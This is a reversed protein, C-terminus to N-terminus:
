SNKPLLDLSLLVVSRRFEERRSGFRSRSAM